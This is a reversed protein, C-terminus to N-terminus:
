KSHNYFVWDFFAYFQMLNILNFFMHVLCAQNYSRSAVQSKSHKKFGALTTNVKTRRQLWAMVHVHGSKIGSSSSYELANWNEHQAEEIYSSDVFKWNEGNEPVLHICEGKLRPRWRKRAEKMNFGKDMHWL